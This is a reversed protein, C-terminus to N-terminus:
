TSAPSPSSPPPTAQWRLPTPSTTRITTPSTPACRWGSRSSSASCGPDSIGLGTIVVAAMAGILSGVVRGLSKSIVGGVTPFSVVAASTMAWYPSDLELVFALWLSLCMALSNRLAYRWQGGNAKGWPTQRWLSAAM